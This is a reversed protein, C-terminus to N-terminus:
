LPFHAKLSCKSEHSVHAGPQETLHLSISQVYGPKCERLPTFRSCAKECMHGLHRLSFVYKIDKSKLDRNFLFHRGDM